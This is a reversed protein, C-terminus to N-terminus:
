IEARWSYVERVRVPNLKDKFSKLSPRDLVWGDNVLKGSNLIIPDIYFLYRAYESLFPEPRCICYRYNIYKYNEDWINIAYVKGNRDRLVKRHDGEFVYKLLVEDDEIIRDVNSKLWEELVSKIDGKCYTWYYYTSPDELRREIWKMCNKRFTQWKGGEMSLFNKPDYIYEYDLFSKNSKFPNYNNFDSWIEMGNFPYWLSGTIEHIPPFVVTEKDKIIWLSGHNNLEFGAKEFYEESCWFNPEIQHRELLKLYCGSDKKQSIKEQHM